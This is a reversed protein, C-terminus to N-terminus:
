VTTITEQALSSKSAGMLRSDRVQALSEQLFQTEFATEM